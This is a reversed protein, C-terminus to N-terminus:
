FIESPRKRRRRRRLILVAGATDSLSTIIDTMNTGTRGDSDIGTVTLPVTEQESNSCTVKAMATNLLTQSTATIDLYAANNTWTEVDTLTGDDVTVSLGTDDGEKTATYTLLLAAAVCQAHTGALTFDHTGRTGSDVATGALGSVDVDGNAETCQFRVTEINSDTDDITVAIAEAVGVVSLTSGPNTVVPAVNNGKIRTNDNRFVIEDIYLTGTTSSDINSIGGIRMRNIGSFVDYLDAGSLGSGQAEGDASYSGGGFYMTSTADSAVNSSAKTVQIEIWLPATTYVINETTLGFSDNGLHHRINYVGGINRFEVKTTDYVGSSNQVKLLDYGQGSPISHDNKDMYWRVGYATETTFTTITKQGYMATTNDFLLAVGGTTGGLAAGASQSMDGDADTTSTFESLDTEFQMNFLEAM